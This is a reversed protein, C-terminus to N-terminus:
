KVFNNECPLNFGQTTHKWTIAAIALNLVAMSVGTKSLHLLYLVLLKPECPLSCKRNNEILWSVWRAYASDYQTATNVARSEHLLDPIEKELNELNESEAKFTSEAFIFM